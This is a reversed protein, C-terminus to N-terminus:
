LQRRLRRDSGRGGARDRDGRGSGEGSEAPWRLRAGEGAAPSWPISRTPCMRRCSRTSRSSGAGPARRSRPYAPLRQRGTAGRPTECRTPSRRTRPYTSRTCWRRACHQERPQDRARRLRSQPCRRVSDGTCRRLRRRLSGRGRGAGDAASGSARYLTAALSAPISGPISWRSGRCRPDPLPTSTRGRSGQGGPRPRSRIRVGAVRWAAARPHGVGAARHDRGEDARDGQIRPRAASQDGAGRLSGTASGRRRVEEVADPYFIETLEVAEETAPSSSLCRSRRLERVPLRPRRALRPQEALRHRRLRGAPLGAGDGGPGGRRWAWARAHPGLVRGGLRRLDDPVPLDDFFGHTM